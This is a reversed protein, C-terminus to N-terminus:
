GPRLNTQWPGTRGTSSMRARRRERGDWKSAVERYATFVNESPWTYGIPSRRVENALHLPLCELFAENDQHVYSNQDRTVMGFAVRLGADEYARLAVEAGFNPLTPQGYYMDVAATQGGRILQILHHLIAHYLDDESIRLFMGHMWINAREFILEYVGQGLSCESHFHCNIFGPIVCYDSGGLREDYSGQELQVRSGIEIIKEDEIVLGADEIFPEDGLHVIPDGLVLTRM